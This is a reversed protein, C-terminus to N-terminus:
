LNDYSMYYEHLHHGPITPKKKKKFSFSFKCQGFLDFVKHLRQMFTTSKNCTSKQNLIHQVSLMPENLPM